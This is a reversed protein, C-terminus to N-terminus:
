KLRLHQCDYLYIQVKFIYRYLHYVIIGQFDFILGSQGLGSQGEGLTEKKDIKGQRHPM